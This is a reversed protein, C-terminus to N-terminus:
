HTTDHTSDKQTSLKSRHWTSFALTLLYYAAINVFALTFNMLESKKCILLAIITLLMRLLSFGLNAGIYYSSDKAKLANCVVLELLTFAFFPVSAFLISRAIDYVTADVLSREAFFLLIGGVVQLFALLSGLRLVRIM